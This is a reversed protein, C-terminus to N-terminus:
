DENDDPAQGDDNTTPRQDDTTRPQDALIGFEIALARWSPEARLKEIARARLVYVNPITNGLQEAITQDDLGDIFKLRLAAFQHSARPHKRLFEDALLAFRARLEEAILLESPDPQQEDVLLEGLEAAGAASRAALSREPPQERQLSRATDLLQQIAFALFAGPQRCREFSTYIHVLARQAVEEHAGPYRQFAIDYLYRFLETYARNQREAGEGGSCATHLALSYIHTAARQADSAGGGSWHDLARRAFEARDLLQWQHRALLGDVAEVCTREMAAPVAELQSM